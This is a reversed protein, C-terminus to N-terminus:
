TVLAKVLPLLQQGLDFKALFGDAEVLGPTGKAFASIILVRVKPSSKKLREVSATVDPGLHLDIVIIDPNVESAVFHLSPLDSVEGVVTVDPDLELIKRIVRSVTPVDDALLIRIPM